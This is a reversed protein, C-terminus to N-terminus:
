RAAPDQAHLDAAKRRKYARAEHDEKLAARIDAITASPMPRGTAVFGARIANTSVVAGPSLARQVTGHGVYLYRAIERVGMGRKRLKRIASDRLVKRFRAEDRRENRDQERTLGSAKRLAEDLSGGMVLKAAAKWDARAMNLRQGVEAADLTAGDETTVIVAGSKCPCPTVALTGFAGHRNQYVKEQRTM